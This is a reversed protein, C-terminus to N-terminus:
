SFATFANYASLLVMMSIAVTFAIKVAKDSCKRNIVAGALGGLVACPLIFILARLDYNLFNGKILQATLNSLQSFFIVAVSYVASDRVSFSFLLVLAAVNIPGGGIGLFAALSGLVVGTLLVTFVNKLKFHKVNANVFVTAFILLVCLAVSQVGRVLESDSARSLAFSFVFNGLLGGAVAGASLPLVINKKLEVGSKLHKVTSSVSMVFVACSSFFSIEALSHINIVDLVPKIIVGGGLGVFAGMFTAAFIVLSYILYVM